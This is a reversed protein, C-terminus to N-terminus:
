ADLEEDGSDSNMRFELDDLLEPPQEPEDSATGTISTDLRPIPVWWHTAVDNEDSDFQRPCALEYTGLRLNRDLSWNIILKVTQPITDMAMSFADDPFDLELPPQYFFQHRADSTGPPIRAIPLRTEPDIRWDEKWVRIQYMPSHLWLGSMAIEQLEFGTSEFANARLWLKTEFRVLHSFLWPEHPAKAREFYQHAQDIGHLLAQEVYNSLFPQLDALVEDSTPPFKAKM